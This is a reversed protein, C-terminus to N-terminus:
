CPGFRVRQHGFLSPSLILVSVIDGRLDTLRGEDLLVAVPVGTASDFLMILGNSSSLGRKANDYFGSAVKVAFTADGKIHGYKIHVEGHPFFLESVPPVTTEGRSYAAFGAEIAPLLDLGPLVRAIEAWGVVVTM